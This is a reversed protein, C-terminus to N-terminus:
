KLLKYEYSISNGTNIIKPLDEESFPPITSILDKNERVIYKLKNKPVVESTYTNYANLSRLHSNHKNYYSVANEKTRFIADM